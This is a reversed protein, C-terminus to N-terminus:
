EHYEEFILNGKLTVTIRNWAIITSNENIYVPKGYVETIKKIIENFYNRAEETPKNKLYTYVSVSEVKNNSFFFITSSGEPYNEATYYDWRSDKQVTVPINEQLQKIDMGIFSFFNINKFRNDQCFIFFNCSFFLLVFIAIKLRKVM